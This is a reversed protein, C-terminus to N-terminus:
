KHILTKIKEKVYTIPKYLVKIVASFFRKLPSKKASEHDASSLSPTDEPISIVAKHDEETTIMRGEVVYTTPFSWGLSNLYIRANVSALRWTISSPAYYAYPGHDISAALDIVFQNMYSGLLTGAFHLENLATLGRVNIESIPEQYLRLKTLTDKTANNVLGTIASIGTRTNAGAHGISKIQIGNPIVAYHERTAATGFSKSAAGLADPNSTTGDSWHWTILSGDGPSVPELMLRATADIITFYIISDGNNVLQRGTGVRNLIGLQGLRNM